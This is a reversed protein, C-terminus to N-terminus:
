SLAHKLGVLHNQLISKIEPKCSGCGLGAGTQKCLSRFDLVGEDMQQVLNGTGVNNCSCILEGIVPEREKQVRLLETRKNSLEIKNEILSRFEAFESKDGVLIAGVLRDNKVLCRKYYRHKLDMFVVEEYDKNQASINVTGISCLDLDDFKLINMLTSGNYISSLDGLLYRAVCDAQEEAAATIGYLKRQYEAIEGIAFINPDSTQLYENVNIGRGCELGCAKALEINPRTGIAYIVANATFTRGSRLTVNLNRSGPEQNITSVENNFYIAIDREIVDEALLKSAVPDLQVEMLRSARQVLTINIGVEKLAAAIELGLLGGGVIVAHQDKVPLGTSSLFAKLDDANERRRITFVGDMHIPVERPVFARSGTALVLRDYPYVQGNQDTVTKNDSDVHDIATGRYLTIQLKDLESEKVKQLQEWTLKESVYEPLLVRNYFPETELSFVHLEDKKNNERYTQVFRYAAAGAGVVM